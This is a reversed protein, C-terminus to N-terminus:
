RLPQAEEDEISFRAVEIERRLYHLQNEESVKKCVEIIGQSEPVSHKWM